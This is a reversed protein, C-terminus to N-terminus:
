NEFYSMRTTKGIDKHVDAIRRMRTPSARIRHANAIHTFKRGFPMPAAAARFRDRRCQAIMRTTAFM